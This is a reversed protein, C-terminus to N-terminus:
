WLKYGTCFHKKFYNRHMRPGVPAFNFFFRMRINSGWYLSLIHTLHQIAMATFYAYIYLCYTKQDLTYIYIYGHIYKHQVCIASPGYTSSAMRTRHKIMRAYLRLFKIPLRARTHTCTNRSNSVSHLLLIGCCAQLFVRYNKVKACRSVLKTM